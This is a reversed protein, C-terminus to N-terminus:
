EYVKSMDVTAYGLVTPGMAWPRYKVVEHAMVGTFLKDSGLYSFQWLGLGDAFRSLLSVNQKLRRDSFLSAAGGIGSAIKGFLSPKPPRRQGAQLMTNGAQLGLGAQNNLQGLYNNFFGQNLEAGRNLLQTQTSGSRLLGQAANGGIVGEQMRALANDFGANKYYQDMGAQSAQQDGQGTLLTSMINSAGVGQQTMPQFTQSVQQGNINEYRAAKKKKKLFGM